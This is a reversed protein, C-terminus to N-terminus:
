LKLFFICYLCPQMSEVSVSVSVSMSEISACTKPSITSQKDRCLATSGLPRSLSAHSRSVPSGVVRWLQYHNAVCVSLDSLETTTHPVEQNHHVEVHHYPKFKKELREKELVPSMHFRNVESRKRADVALCASMCARSLMRSCNSRSSTFSVSLECACCACWCVKPHTRATSNM